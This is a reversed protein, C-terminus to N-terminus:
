EDTFTVPVLCTGEGPVSALAYPRGNLLARYDPHLMNWEARPMYRAARPVPDAQEEATLWDM